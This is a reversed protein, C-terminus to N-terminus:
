YRDGFIGAPQGNGKMETAISESVHCFVHNAAGYKLSQMSSALVPITMGMGDKQEGEIGKQRLSAIRLTATVPETTKSTLIYLVITTLPQEWIITIVMKM